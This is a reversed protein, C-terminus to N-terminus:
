KPFIDEVINEIHLSNQYSPLRQFIDQEKEQTKDKGQISMDMHTLNDHQLIIKLIYEMSDTNGSNVAPLRKHGENKYLVHVNGWEAIKSTKRETRKYSTM